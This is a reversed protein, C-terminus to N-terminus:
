WSTWWTSTGINILNWLKRFNDCLKRSFSEYFGYNSNCSGPWFELTGYRHLTEWWWHGYRSSKHFVGFKWPLVVLKSLRIGDPIVSPRFSKMSDRLELRHRSKPNRVGGLSSKWIMKSSKLSLPRKGSIMFFFNLQTPWALLGSAPCLLTTQLQMSILKTLRLWSTQAMTQPSEQLLM